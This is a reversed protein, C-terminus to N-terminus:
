VCCMTSKSFHESDRWWRFAEDVVADAVANPLVIHPRPSCDLALYPLDALAALGVLRGLLDECSLDEGRRCLDECM